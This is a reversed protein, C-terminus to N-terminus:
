DLRFSKIFDAIIGNTWGFGLQPAYEGGNGSEGNSGAQYKEFFAKKLKWGVEANEVWGRALEKALSGGEGAAIRADLDFLLGRRCLGLGEGGKLVPCTLAVVLTHVLPAWSNAGDWQLKSSSSTTSGPIRWRGEPGMLGGEASLITGVASDFEFENNCIGAALPFAAALTLPGRTEATREVEVVVSDGGPSLSACNPPLLYDSILGTSSDFFACRMARLRSSSLQNWKETDFDNLVELLSFGQACKAEKICNCEVKGGEEDGYAHFRCISPLDEETFSAWSDGPRSILSRFYAILRETGYLLANLDCALIRSTELHILTTDQSHLDDCSVHNCNSCSSWMDPCWRTSFDWGSEAGARLDSALQHVAHEVEDLSLGDALLREKLLHHIRKDTPLSEQRPEIDTSAYRSLFYVDKINNTGLDDEELSPETSVPQASPHHHVPHYHHHNQKSKNFLHNENLQVRVAHPASNFFFWELVLALYAKRMQSGPLAVRTLLKAIMSHLVPPQSRTLYYSRMGNPIFGYKTCINIFNEVITRGSDVRDCALLGDFIWKSDWYYFERFRGGPVFFSGEIPIASSIAPKIDVHRKILLPWISCIAEMTGKFTGNELNYVWQPLRAMDGKKEAPEVDAGVDLFMTKIIEDADEKTKCHEIALILDHM